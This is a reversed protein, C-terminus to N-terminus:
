IKESFFGILLIAKTIRSTLYRSISATALKLHTKVSEKGIGLKEAIEQYTLKEYRSLMFVERQRESLQLIAQDIFSYLEENKDEEQAYTGQIDARFQRIEQLDRLIKKLSNIAQNKSVTFLYAKFNHVNVLSERSMWIKLFVDQVIESTDERSKTISYIFTSLRPEWIHFLQRFASESGSAVELLLEKDQNIIQINSV